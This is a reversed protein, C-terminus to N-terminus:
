PSCSVVVDRCDAVTVEGLGIEIYEELESMYEDLDQATTLTLYKCVGIMEDCTLESEYQELM